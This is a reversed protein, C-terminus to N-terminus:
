QQKHQSYTNKWKIDGKNIIITNYMDIQFGGWIAGILTLIPIAFIMASGERSDVFSGKAGSLQVIFLSAGLGAIAGIGLGSLSFGRNYKINLVDHTNFTVVKDLKKITLTQEDLKIFVGEETENTIFTLLIDKGRCEMNIQALYEYTTRKDKEIHVSCSNIFFSIILLFILKKEM